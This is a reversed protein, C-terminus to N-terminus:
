SLAAVGFSSDACQRGDHLLSFRWSSCPDACGAGQKIAAPSPRVSQRLVFRFRCARQEQLDQFFYVVLSIRIFARNISRAFCIGTGLAGCMDAKATAIPPLASMLKHAAYTQKQGLASM